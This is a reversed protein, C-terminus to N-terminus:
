YKILEFPFKTQEFLDAFVHLIFSSMMSREIQQKLSREFLRRKTPWELNRKFPLSWILSSRELPINKASVCDSYFLWLMQNCFGIFDFKTVRSLQNLIICNKNWSFNEIGINLPGFRATFLLSFFSLCQLNNWEFWESVWKFSLKLFNSKPGGVRM